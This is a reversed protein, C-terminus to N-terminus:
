YRKKREDDLSRDFKADKPNPVMYNALERRNFDGSIASKLGYTAAGVASVGATTGLGGLLGKGTGKFFDSALDRGAEKNAATLIEGTRDRFINKILSKAERKNLENEYINRMKISKKSLKKDEGAKDIASKWEKLMDSKVTKVRQKTAKITRKYRDKDKAIQKAEKTMPKFLDSVNKAAGIAQGASLGTKKKIVHAGIGLAAAGAAATALHAGLGATSAVRASRGRGKRVYDHRVGWRMGKVGHHYLEGDNIVYRM